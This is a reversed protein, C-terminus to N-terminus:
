FLVQNIFGQWGYISWLVWILSFCPVFISPGIDLFVFSGGELPVDLERVGGTPFLMDFKSEELFNMLKVTEIFIDM